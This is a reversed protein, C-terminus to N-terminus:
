FRNSYMLQWNTQSHSTTQNAGGGLSWSNTVTVKPAYTMSFDISSSKDLMYGFGFMAHNKITAPFLPSMFNDPVPNTSLNVGFRLTLPESYRYSAGLMFVDQDDWNQNFVMDMQTGAFGAAFGIQTANAEFTMKFSKMVDAWNIRKYDGVFMWKDSHQYAFGLGFTEPWEFDKVTVKGVVPITQYTGAMNVNFSVTANGDTKLDSLNTKAHYVGGITLKPSVKYTFGLNGALGDGTAAQRFDNSKEFDFYGWTMQDFNGAGMAGQFATVMTGAVTGFPSVGGMMGAFHSGDILWKIDMGAWVYDVSGGVTLKDSVDYSLPFILRGVGVQSMNRLAAGAALDGAAPAGGPGVGGNMDGSSALTGWFNGNAYDTGMGGQAMMGVGYAIKGTKRIYGFAPMFFADADSDLANGGASPNTNISPHLGGVAVDLRSTDSKMFGLTAPNNIIGANGNDYAFSAGGMGTAVPGYGEMNMGNTAFAPASIGAVAILAAIKKLKM